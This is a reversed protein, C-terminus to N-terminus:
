RYKIQKCPWVLVVVRVVIPIWKKTNLIYVKESETSSTANIFISTHTHSGFVSCSRHALPNFTNEHLWFFHLCVCCRCCRGLSFFVRFLLWYWLIYYYFGKKKMNVGHITKKWNKKRERKSWKMEKARKAVFLLKWWWKRKFKMKKRRRRTRQNNNSNNTEIQWM